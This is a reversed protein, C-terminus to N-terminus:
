LYNADFDTSMAVLRQFLSIKYPGSMEGGLRGWSSFSEDRGFTTQWVQLM